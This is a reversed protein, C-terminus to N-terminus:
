VGSVITFLDSLSSSQGDVLLSIKALECPDWKKCFMSRGTKTSVNRVVNIAFLMSRYSWWFSARGNNGSLITGVIDALVIRVQLGARYIGVPIM